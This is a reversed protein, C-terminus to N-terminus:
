YWCVHGSTPGDCWTGSVSLFARCRNMVVSVVFFLVGSLVCVLERPANGEGRGGCEGGAGGGFLWSYFNRRLSFGDPKERYLVAASGGRGAGRLGGGREGRGGQVHGRDLLLLPHVSQVSLPPLSPLFSVRLQLQRASGKQAVDGDLLRARCLCLSVWGANPGTALIM